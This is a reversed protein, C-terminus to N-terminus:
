EAREISLGTKAGVAMSLGAISFMIIGGVLIWYYSGTSDYILGAIPPGMSVGVMAFIFLFGMVTAYARKGFCDSVVLPWIVARGASCVGCLAAFCFLPAPSKLGFLFFVALAPLGYSLSIMVRMNFRDAAAGVVIMTLLMTARILSYGFAAVNKEIGTEIAFAVLQTEIGVIAIAAALDAIGIGWFSLMGLAQMASFGGAQADSGSGQPAQPPDEEGYPKLGVDSPKGHIFLLILPILVIWLSLGFIRYAWRWGAFEILFNSINPMIFGGVGSGMMAFSMALGRRRVFWESVIAAVPLYTCATITLGALFLLGYFQYLSRIEGLAFTTLGMGAVGALMIWRPRWRDMFHGLVPASIAHMAAWLAVGTMLQTRSWGFENELPKLFVSFTFWGIGAAVTMCSFCAAM